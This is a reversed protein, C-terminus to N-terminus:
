LAEALAQALAEASPEAATVIANPRGADRLARATPEGIAAFITREPIDGLRELAYRAGLASTFTLADAREILGRSAEYAGPAASYAAIVRVDFREQLRERLESGGQASRYLCVREGRPLKACLLEALAASTQEAPVLDARLGHGLLALATAKGIAAIRASRLARVDLGNALLREFYLEVGAASTFVLCGADVPTNGADPLPTLAVECATFTEAGLARLAEGLKANMRPTGTLGIRRCHLPPAQVPSFDLAATEGVVIVAPPAAREALAAINELTGRICYRGAASSDSVVACPTSGPKGASILRAAIEGLRSLGMLIVLTGPLAALADFGEPLEGSRTHATIVHFGRSVGRHTVPIGALAPIAYASSVGPIEECPVGAANLAAMEEGGRGFVFPDGGKLRVVRKGERALEILKACIEDQAASPRHARKGMRILEADPPALRLTDEAILDDYVVADCAKLREAGLLTILNAGCGAGVLSVLGSM